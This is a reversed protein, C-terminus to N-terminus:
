RKRELISQHPSAKKGTTSSVSLSYNILQHEKARKWIIGHHVLRAQVGFHTDSRPKRSLNEPTPRIISWIRSVQVHFRREASAKRYLRSKYVLRAACVLPGVFLFAGCKQSANPASFSVRVIVQLTNIILSKYSCLFVDPSVYTFSEHSKLVYLSLSKFPWKVGM